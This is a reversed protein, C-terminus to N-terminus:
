WTLRDARRPLLLRTPATHLYTTAKSPTSTADLMAERGAVKERESEGVDTMQGKGEKGRRRRRECAGFHLRRFVSRGAVISRSPVWCCPRTHLPPAKRGGDKRGVRGAEQHSVDVSVHSHPHPHLTPCCFSPNRMLDPADSSYRTPLATTRPQAASRGRRKTGDDCAAPVLPSNKHYAERADSRGDEADGVLAGKQPTHRGRSCRLLYCSAGCLATSGSGHSRFVVEFAGVWLRPPLDLDDAGTLVREGGRRTWGVGASM